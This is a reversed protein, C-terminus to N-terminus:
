VKKNIIYINSGSIEMIYGDNVLEELVSIDKDVDILVCHDHEKLLEELIFKTPKMGKCNLTLEKSDVLMCLTADIKGNNHLWRIIKLEDDKSHCDTEYATEKVYYSKRPEDEVSFNTIFVKEGAALRNFLITYGTRPQKNFRYGIGYNALQRNCAGVDDIAFYVNNYSVKDFNDFFEHIKSEKYESKYLNLFSERGIKKTILNDYLHICLGLNHQKTGNNKNPLSMNCRYNIEFSDIIKNLSINKYPKNGIVIVGM